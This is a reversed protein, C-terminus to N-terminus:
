GFNEYDDWEERMMELYPTIDEDIDEADESDFVQGDEDVLFWVFRADDFPAYYEVALIKETIEPEAGGYTVNKDECTVSHNTYGIVNDEMIEVDIIEYKM